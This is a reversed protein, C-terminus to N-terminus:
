TVVSPATDQALATSIRTVASEVDGHRTGAIESALLEMGREYQRKGRITWKRKKERRWALDRVVEAIQFISGSQLKEKLLEYRKNHNPPLDQPKARLIRWIRSLRSRSVTPRLGVQDVNQLAVMVITDPHSLLQISYYPKKEVDLFEREKLDTIIGAGFRPHVVTDGIRFSM